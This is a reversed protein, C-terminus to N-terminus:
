PKGETSHKATFGEEKRFLTFWKANDKEVAKLTVGTITGDKVKRWIRHARNRDLEVKPRALRKIMASSGSFRERFQRSTSYFDGTNGVGRNIAADSM